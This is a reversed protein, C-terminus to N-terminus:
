NGEYMYGPVKHITNVLVLVLVKFNKLSCFLMM